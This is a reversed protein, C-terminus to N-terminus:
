FVFGRGQQEETSGTPLDEYLIPEKREISVGSRYDTNDSKSFNAKPPEKFRAPVVKKAQRVQRSSDFWWPWQDFKNWVKMMHVPFSSDGGDEKRVDRRVDKHVVEPQINLQSNVVLHTGPALHRTWAGKKCRFTPRRKFRKSCAPLLREKNAHYLAWRPSGIRKQVDKLTEGERVKVTKANSKVSSAFTPRKPVVIDTGPAMRKTWAGHKCRYTPRKPFQESCDKIMRDRNTLLLVWKRAGVRKRVDKLTEGEKVQTVTYGRKSFSDVDVVSVFHDSKVLPKQKDVRKKEAVQRQEVDKQKIIVATTVPIHRTWKKGKCAASPYSQLCVKRLRDRNLNIIQKLSTKYSRALAWLTDGKIMEHYIHTNKRRSSIDASRVVEDMLDTNEENTTAIVKTVGEALQVQKKPHQEDASTGDSKSKVDSISWDLADTAGADVEDTASAIATAADHQQPIENSASGGALWLITILVILAGLVAILIFRYGDKPPSMTMHDGVLEGEVGDYATFSKEENDDSM